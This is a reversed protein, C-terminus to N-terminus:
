YYNIYGNGQPIPTRWVWDDLDADAAALPRMAVLAAAVAMLGLCRGLLGLTVDHRLVCWLMLKM